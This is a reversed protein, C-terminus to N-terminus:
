KHRYQLKTMEEEEDFSVAASLIPIDFLQYYAKDNRTVM